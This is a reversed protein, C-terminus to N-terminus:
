GLKGSQQQSQHHHTVSSRGRSVGDRYGNQYGYQQAQAANGRNYGDDDDDRDRQAVALGSVMLTVAIVLAAMRMQQAKM